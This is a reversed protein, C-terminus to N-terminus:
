RRALRRRRRPTADGSADADAHENGDCDPGARYSDGHASGPKAGLISDAPPLDRAGLIARDGGPHSARAPHGADKYADPYGGAEAYLRGAARGLGLDRGLRQCGCPSSCQSTCATADADADRRCVASDTRRDVM